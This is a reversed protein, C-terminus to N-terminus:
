LWKNERYWDATIQLQEFLPQRPQFGLDRQAAECSCAWSEASAERMKDINLSSSQGRVRGILESIGGVLWPLPQPLLLYTVCRLRLARQLLRGFELYDPYENRCAFYFGQGTGLPGTRATSTGAIRPHCAPVLRRGTESARVLLDVLDAVHIVSLRPTQYGAVAHVRLRRISRFMPLLERGCEGFVIGPRVVTVPVRDALHQVAVEGARKSRGYYSIPKPPDQETRIQSRGVPGAAAISSVYILVPPTPQQACALAVHWTGLGNAQMLSARRVASTLGALHYVRDAGAVARAVSAADALSGEVLEVGLSHLADTHSTARVLCRVAHGQAVLHQTLHGGIFGTAGTVLIAAM